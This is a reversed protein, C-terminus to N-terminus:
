NAKSGVMSPKCVIRSHNVYLTPIIHARSIYFFYPRRWINFYILIIVTFLTRTAHKVPFQRPVVTNVRPPPPSFLLNLFAGFCFGSLLIMFVIFLCLFILMFLEDLSKDAVFTRLWIALSISDTVFVVLESSPVDVVLM